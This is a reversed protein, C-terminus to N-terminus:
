FPVSEAAAIYGREWGVTRREAEAGSARLQEALQLFDLPDV